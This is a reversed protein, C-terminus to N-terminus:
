GTHKQLCFDSWTCLDCRLFGFLEFTTNSFMWYGVMLICKYQCRLAILINKCTSKSGCPLKNTTIHRVFSSLLPAFFLIRPAPAFCLCFTLPWHPTVEIGKSKGILCWCSGCRDGPSFQYGSEILTSGAALGVACLWFLYAANAGVFLFFWDVPSRRVNFFNISSTENDTGRLRCYYLSRNGFQVDITRTRRVSFLEDPMLCTDFHATKTTQRTTISSLAGSWKVVWELPAKTPFSNM